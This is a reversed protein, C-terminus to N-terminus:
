WQNDERPWPNLPEGDWDWASFHWEEAAAVIEAKLRADAEMEELKARVLAVSQCRLRKRLGIYFAVHRDKKPLESIFALWERSM